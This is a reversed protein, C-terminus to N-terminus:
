KTEKDLIELEQDLCGTKIVFCHELILKAKNLCITFNLSAGSLVISLKRRNISNEVKKM